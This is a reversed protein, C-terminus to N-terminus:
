RSQEAAGKKMKGFVICFCVVHATFTLAWSIPYSLYLCQLTHIKQFVTYIWIIRFLCAGTLSVLMPMIGYGMGRISGVMVD